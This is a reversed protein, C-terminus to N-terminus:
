NTQVTKQGRSVYNEAPELKSVFDIYESLKNIYIIEDKNIGLMESLTHPINYEKWKEEEEKRRNVLNNIKSYDLILKGDDLEQELDIIEEIKIDKLYELEYKNSNIEPEKLMIFYSQKIYTLNKLYVEFQETEKDKFNSLEKEILDDQMQTIEEIELSYEVMIRKLEKENCSLDIQELLEIGFINRKTNQM